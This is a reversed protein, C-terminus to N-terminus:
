CYQSLGMLEHLFLGFMILHNGFFNCGWGLTFGYDNRVVATTKLKDLFGYHSRRFRLVQCTHVKDDGQKMLSQSMGKYSILSQSIGM